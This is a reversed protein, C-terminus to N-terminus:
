ILDGAEEILDKFNNYFKERLQKTKFHLFHKVSYNVCFDIKYECYYMVHKEQDEDDWDARWEGNYHDRLQELKHLARYKDPPMITFVSNGTVGCYEGWSEALDNEFKIKPYLRKLTEKTEKCEAKTYAEKIDQKKAKM